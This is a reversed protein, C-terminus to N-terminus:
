QLIFCKEKAIPSRPFVMNYLYYATKNVFIPTHKTRWYNFLITNHGINEFLLMKYDPQIHVIKHLGHLFGLYFLPNADVMQNMSGICQLTNGEIDEFQMKIDKMFYISYIDKHKRLCFVYLLQQKILAVINGIDPIAMFDFTDTNKEILTQKKIHLFDYLIDHNEHNIQIIEFHPPLKTFHINRLYFTYTEYEVLPIVGEFLDIEKKILSVVISPTQIRQNYEHTQLLKRSIIKKDLEKNKKRHVCLFDIYYMPMVTYITDNITPRYYATTPRSTICGIPIPLSIVDLSNCSLDIIQHKPERYVSIYSKDNHGTLYADIDNLHITHLIRDTDFYYCQLLDKINEIQNETSELYATTTIQNFDCFKTKIPRYKYVIFPTSYFYRWYDYYHFVPQINWFPYTLKICIFALIFSFITAIFIYQIM